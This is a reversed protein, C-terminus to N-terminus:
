TFRAVAPTAALRVAFLLSLAADIKELVYSM